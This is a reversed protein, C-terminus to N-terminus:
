NKVGQALELVVEIVRDVQAPRMGQWIPLSISRLFKDYAEPFDEPKLSYRNSWYSMTHLPIFHVSIGIGAAQLRDAFEDRDISLAGKRLRLSFLYWSHASHMPPMEFAPNGGFAELYRCAIARRQDLFLDAKKLQERGVAALLDPLNYKYGPEVVDYRWSAKKSTYRDWATRDFGHLRMMEMRKMMADDHAVVMGGEGTTITKTAYFSYFGADGITGAAGEPLRLPFGHASDEVVKVGHRSAIELIEAMRCPMGGLHVPVVVRISGDSSLLADLLAPDINYDDKSIDCFVVEGGLQRVVAADSTFTYPSMAVKTGPGVGLADLALHLGSTASNVALARKAGVFSAFEEEFARAVKGTTLWGSRLVELVAKEEEVGISPLAFPVFDTNAKM